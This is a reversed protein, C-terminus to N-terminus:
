MRGYALNSYLDNSTFPLAAFAALHIIVAGRLLRPMAAGTASRIARLFAVTAAAVLVGFVLLFLAIQWLALRPEDVSITGAAWARLWTLGAAGAFCLAM